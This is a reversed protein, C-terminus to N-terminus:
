EGLTFTPKGDRLAKVKAQKEEIQKQLADWVKQDRQAEPKFVRDFTLDLIEAELTAIQKQLDMKAEIRKM